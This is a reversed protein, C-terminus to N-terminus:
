RNFGDERPHGLNGPFLKGKLSVWELEILFENKM